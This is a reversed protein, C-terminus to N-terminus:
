VIMFFHYILYFVVLCLVINFIDVNGFYELHRKKNYDPYIYINNSDYGLYRNNDSPIYRSWRNQEPYTRHGSYDYTVVIEDFDRPIKVVRKGYREERFFTNVLKGENFTFKIQMHSPVVIFANGNDIARIIDYSFDAKHFVTGQSGSLQYFRRKMKNPCQGDMNGVDYHIAIHNSNRVRSQAIKQCSGTNM